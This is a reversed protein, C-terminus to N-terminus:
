KTWVYGLIGEDRYGLTLAQAHEEPNSTYFHQGGTRDIMRYM